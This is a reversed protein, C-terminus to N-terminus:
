IEEIWRWQKIKAIAYKASEVPRHLVDFDAYASSPTNCIFCFGHIKTVM